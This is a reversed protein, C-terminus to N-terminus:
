LHCPGVAAFVPFRVHLGVWDYHLSHQNCGSWAFSHYSQIGGVALFQPSETGLSALGSEAAHHMPLSIVLMLATHEERRSFRKIGQPGLVAFRKEGLLGDLDPGCAGYVLM